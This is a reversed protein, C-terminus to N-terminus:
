QTTASRREFYVDVRMGVVLPGPQALDVLVEVADVDSRNDTGRSTIRAPEVLPAISIV